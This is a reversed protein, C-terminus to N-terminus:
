TKKNAYDQMTIISEQMTFQGIRTDNGYEEPFAGFLDSQNDAVQHETLKKIMQESFGKDNLAIAARGVLAYVWPSDGSSLPDGNSGYQAYLETDISFKHKYFQLSINASQMLEPDKSEANRVMMWMSNISYGGADIGNGYARDKTLMSNYLGNAIQAKLSATKMKDYIGIWPAGRRASLERLVTFDSYSLWVENATWSSNEGSVGGYPALYGDKTVGVKEIGSAIQNIMQTYKPDKWQKEAILLAKIARLDADTAINAGDREVQNSENLRWMLYGYKPQMMYQKVFDLEADFSKKDNAQALQLLYYSVAESNTNIDELSKNQSNTIYLYIHGDRRVFNKEFFSQASELQPYIKSPSDESISDNTVIEAANPPSRAIVGMSVAVLLGAAFILYVAVVGFIIITEKKQLKISM